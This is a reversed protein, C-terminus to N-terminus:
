KAKPNQPTPLEGPHLKSPPARDTAGDPPVISTPGIESQSRNGAGTTEGPNRPTQTSPFDRQPSPVPTQAHLGTVNLSAALVVIATTTRKMDLDGNPGFFQKAVTFTGRNFGKGSAREGIRVSGLHPEAIQSGCVM